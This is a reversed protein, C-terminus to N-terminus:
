SFTCKDCFICTYKIARAVNLLYKKSTKTSVHTKSSLTNFPGHWPQGVIKLKDNYGLTSIGIHNRAPLFIPSDGCLKLDINWKSIEAEFGRDGVTHIMKAHITHHWSTPAWQQTIDELIVDSTDQEAHKWCLLAALTGRNIQGHLKKWGLSLLLAFWVSASVM